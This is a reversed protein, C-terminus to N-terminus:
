GWVREGAPREKGGPYQGYFGDWPEDDQFYEDITEQGYKDIRLDYGILFGNVDLEHSQARVICDPSTELTGYESVNRNTFLLMDHLLQWDSISGDFTGDHYEVQVGNPLTTVMTTNM